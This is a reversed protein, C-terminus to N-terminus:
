QFPKLKLQIKKLDEARFCGVSLEIDGNNLAKDYNERSINSNPSNISVRMAVAGDPVTGIYYRSQIEKGNKVLNGKADYFLLRQLWVGAVENVAKLSITCLSGGKVPIADGNKDTTLTGWYKTELKGTVVNPMKYAFQKPSNIIMEKELQYGIGDSGELLAKIMKKDSKATNRRDIIQYESGNDWWICKIGYKAARAVFNSAHEERLEPFPYSTTSGFEGIIIPTHIKDSFKDLEIFEGEIDQHIKQSYTHVQVVIKNPVTDKPLQFADYFRTDMRDLLTPVILVRNTNNGGTSRVATVFAQNLENMQAAAKDGYNWYNEINDVENYAEFILHEDYTKFHEAIETWLTGADKIVKRMTASDAGAYIIPQEHHTNIIVYLDNAIGYDVVDQVRNLWDKSIKLNMNEDLYTNYNWTVPIRITNFGCDAVYDILDKTVYPNGWFIEQNLNNANSSTKGMSDLSNGLNWGVNIANVFEGATIDKMVTNHDYREYEKLGFKPYAAIIKKYDALSLAKDYDFVTIAIKDTDKAKKWKQGSQLDSSSIVRGDRNLELVKMMLDGGPLNVMYEKTGLRCFSDFSIKDPDIIYEGTEYLYSGIKWHEADSLDISDMEKTSTETMYQNSALDIRLGNEFLSFLDAGWKLSKISLGIYKTKPQKKFSDGNTLPGNFKVWNGKADFETISLSIRSDNVNFIYTKADVQYLNRTCLSGELNEYAGGWSKFWGSRFNYYNSLSEIHIESTLLEKSHNYKALDELKTISFRLGNKLDALMDQDSHNLQQRSKYKYITITIYKVSPDLHLIDGNCLDTYGLYKEKKNFKNVIMRYSTNNISVRFSDSEVPFSGSLSLYDDSDTLTRSSKDFKGSIWTDENDLTSIMAYTNEISRITPIEKIVSVGQTLLGGASAQKEETRVLIINWIICMVLLTAKCLIGLDAMVKKRM